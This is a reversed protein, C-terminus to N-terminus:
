EVKFWIEFQRHMEIRQKELAHQLHDVQPKMKKLDAVDNQYKRKEVDIQHRLDDERSELAEDNHGTAKRVAIQQAM